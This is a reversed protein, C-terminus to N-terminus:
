PTGPPSPVGGGGGRRRIREAVQLRILSRQLAAEARALDMDAQRQALRQEARRRAEAARATDIEEAREAMDALVVVRDPRVELFGGGIAFSQEQAGKRTRLEGYGLTTLLPAHHPLIAMEGEIGPAIVVDVEDTFVEREATVIEVKLPM